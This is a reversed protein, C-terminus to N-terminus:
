AATSIIFGVSAATKQFQRLQQRFSNDVVALRSGLRFNGERTGCCSRSMTIGRDRSESTSFSQRWYPQPISEAGEGIGDENRCRPVVCLFHRQAADTAERRGEHMEYTARQRWIGM